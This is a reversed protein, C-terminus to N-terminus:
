NFKDGVSKSEAIKKVIITKSNKLFNLFKNFSEIDSDSKVNVRPFSFIASRILNADSQYVYCWMVSRTDSERKFIISSPKPGVIELGYDYLYGGSTKFTFPIDKEFEGVNNEDAVKAWEITKNFAGEIKITAKDLAKQTFFIKQEGDKFIWQKSRYKGGYSIKMGNYDYVDIEKKSSQANVSLTILVTLFLYLLKKM